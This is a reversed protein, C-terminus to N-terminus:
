EWTDSSVADIWDQDEDAHPSEAALRSQRRSEGKFEESTVDPVWIQLPRLGEARLRERHERVRNRPTAM